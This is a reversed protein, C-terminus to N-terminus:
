SRHRCFTSDFRRKGLDGFALVNEVRQNGADIDDLEIRFFVTDSVATQGVGLPDDLEVGHQMCPGFFRAPPTAASSPTRVGDSTARATM